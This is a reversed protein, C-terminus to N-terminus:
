HPATLLRANTENIRKMITNILAMSIAPELPIASPSIQSCLELKYEVHLYFDDQNTTILRAFIFIGQQEEWAELAANPQTRYWKGQGQPMLYSKPVVFSKTITEHVSILTSCPLLAVSQVTATTTVTPVGSLFGVSRINSTNTTGTPQVHVKMWVFRFFQFAEALETFRPNSSSFSDLNLVFINSSNAASVTSSILTKGSECIMNNSYANKNARRIKNKSKPPM